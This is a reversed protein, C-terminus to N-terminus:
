KEAKTNQRVHSHEKGLPLLSLSLSKFGLIGSYALTGSPLMISTGHKREKLFLMRVRVCACVCVRVCVQRSRELKANTNQVNACLRVCVCEKERACLFVCFFLVCM